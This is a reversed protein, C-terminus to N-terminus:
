QSYTTISTTAIKREISFYAAANSYNSRRRHQLQEVTDKQESDNGIRHLRYLQRIPHIIM